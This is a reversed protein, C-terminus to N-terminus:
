YGLRRYFSSRSLLHNWYGSSSHTRSLRCFWLLYAVFGFSSFSSRSVAFGILRSDSFASPFNRSLIALVLSVLVVIAKTGILLVLYLIDLTSSCTVNNDSDVELTPYDLITWFLLILIDPITLLISCVFLKTETFVVPNVTRNSFVRWVRYQRAMLSGVLIAASIDLFWYHAM